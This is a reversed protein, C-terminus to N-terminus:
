PTLETTNNPWMSNLIIEKTTINNSLIRDSEEQSILEENELETLLSEVTRDSLVYLMILVQITNYTKQGERIISPQYLLKKNGDILDNLISEADNTYGLRIFLTAKYFNYNEADTQYLADLADNYRKIKYLLQAKNYYISAIETNKSLIIDDIYKITSLVTEEDTTILATHIRLLYEDLFTSPQEKITNNHKKSCGILLLFVFFIFIWKLKNM